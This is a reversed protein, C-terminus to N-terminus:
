TRCFSIKTYTSGLRVKHERIENLNGEDEKFFDHQRLEVTNETVKTIFILDRTNKIVVFEGTLVLNVDDIQGIKNGNEFIYNSVTNNANKSTVFLRNGNCFFAKISGLKVDIKTKNYSM